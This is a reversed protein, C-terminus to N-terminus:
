VEGTDKGGRLAKLRDQLQQIQDKIEREQAGRNNKMKQQKRQAERRKAPDRIEEPQVNMSVGVDGATGVENLLHSIFSEKVNKKEGDDKKNAKMETDEDEKEDSGEDDSSSQAEEAMDLANNFRKYTDGSLKRLHSKMAQLEGNQGIRDLLNDALKSTLGLGKTMISKAFSTMGTDSRGEREKAM